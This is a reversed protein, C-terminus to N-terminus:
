LQDERRGQSRRIRVSPLRRPGSGLRRRRLHRRPNEPLRLGLPAPGSMTGVNSVGCEGALEIVALTRDIRAQREADDLSVLDEHAFIRCVELGVERPADVARRAAAVGKTPDFHATSWEIGEYGISKLSSIVDAFPWDRYGLSAQFSIKLSM